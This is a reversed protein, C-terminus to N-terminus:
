TVILYDPPKEMSVLGTKLIVVPYARGPPAVPRELLHPLRKQVRAKTRPTKAVKSSPTRRLTAALGKKTSATSSKPAM